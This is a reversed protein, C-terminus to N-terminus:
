GADSSAMSMSPPSFANQSGDKEESTLGCSFQIASSSGADRWVPDTNGDQSYDNDLILLM